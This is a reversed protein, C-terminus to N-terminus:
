SRVRRDRMPKARSPVTETSRRRIPPHLPARRAECGLHQQRRKESPCPHVGTAEGLTRRQRQDRSPLPSRRPNARQNSGRRSGGRRPLRCPRSNVLSHRVVEDHSTEPERGVNTQEHRECPREGPQEAPSTPASIAATSTTLLAAVVQAGRRLPTRFAPRNRRVRRKPLMLSRIRRKARFSLAQYPAAPVEASRERGGRSRCPRVRVTESHFTPLSIHLVSSTRNRREVASPPM